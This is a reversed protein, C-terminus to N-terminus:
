AVSSAPQLAPSALPEDRRTGLDVGSIAVLVVAAITSVLVTVIATPYHLEIFRNLAWHMLIAPLVSGHARNVVWVIIVSVSVDGIAFTWYPIESQPMGPIFFAPLHWLAWITGLVIAATLGNFRALLRPLAFGRWGLEEGLPGPDFVFATLGGTVLAPLASAEVLHPLPTGFALNSGIRAVLGLLAFGVVPGVYWYWAIRWRFLRSLLDALSKRGQLSALLLAALSPAYVASVVLPNAFSVPGLMDKAIAPALLYFAGLGWTFLFVLAFFPVLGSKKM